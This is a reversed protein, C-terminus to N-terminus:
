SQTNVTGQRCAPQYTQIGYDRVREINKGNPMFLM